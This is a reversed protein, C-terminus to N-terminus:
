QWRPHYCEYALLNGLNGLRMSNNHNVVSNAHHALNNQLSDETERGAETFRLLLLDALLDHVIIPFTVKGDMWSKQEKGIKM